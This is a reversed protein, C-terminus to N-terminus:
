RLLWPGRLAPRPAHAMSRECPQQQGQHEHGGHALQMPHQVERRVGPWRVQHCRLVRVRGIRAASACRKPSLRRSRDRRACGDGFFFVKRLCQPAQQRLVRRGVALQEVLEREPLRQVCGREDQRRRQRRASGRQRAADRRHRAMGCRKVRAARRRASYEMQEM